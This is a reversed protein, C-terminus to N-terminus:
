HFLSQLGEFSAYSTKPLSLPNEQSSQDSHWGEGVNAADHPEKRIEQIQPYGDVNPITPHRLKQLEGFQEGFRVFQESTLRQDRFFIAGYENLAARIEGYVNAGAAALDIGSIEAGLYGSVPEITISDGSM